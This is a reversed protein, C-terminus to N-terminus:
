TVYNLLTGTPHRWERFQPPQQKATGPIRLPGQQQENARHQEPAIGHVHNPDNWDGPINQAASMQGEEVAVNDHPKAPDNSIAPIGAVNVLVRVGVVSRNLLNRVVVLPLFSVDLQRAQTVTAAAQSWQAGFVTSHAVSAHRIEVVVAREDVVTHPQPIAHPEEQKHQAHGDIATEGDVKGAVTHHDLSKRQQVHQPQHLRKHEAAKTPDERACRNQVRAHVQGRVLHKVVLPVTIQSILSRSPIIIRERPTRCHVQKLEKHAQRILHVLIQHHHVLRNSGRRCPRSRCGSPLSIQYYISQRRNIQLCFHNSPQGATIRSTRYAALKLHM